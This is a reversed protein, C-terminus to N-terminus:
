DALKEGHGFRRNGFGEGGNLVANGFGGPFGSAISSSYPEDGDGFGFRRFQKPFCNHCFLENKPLVAHLFSQFLHLRKGINGVEFPMKDSM